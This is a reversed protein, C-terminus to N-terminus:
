HHGNKVAEEAAQQKKLQDGCAEHLDYCQGANSIM